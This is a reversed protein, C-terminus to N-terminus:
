RRIKLYVFLLIMAFCFIMVIAGFLYPIFQKLIDKESEEKEQLKEKLVKNYIKSMEEFASAYCDIQSVNGNKDYITKLITGEKNYTYIITDKLIVNPVIYTVTDGKRKISYEVYNEKLDTEKKIESKKFTSCSTLFLCCMILFFNKFM